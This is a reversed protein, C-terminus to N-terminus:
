DGTVGDHFRALLVVRCALNTGTGPLNMARLLRYKKRPAFRTGIDTLRSWRTNGSDQSLWFIALIEDCPLASSFPM